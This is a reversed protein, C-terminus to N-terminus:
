LLPLRPVERIRLLDTSVECRLDRFADCEAIKWVLQEVVVQQNRPITRVTELVWRQDPPLPLTIVVTDSNRFGM